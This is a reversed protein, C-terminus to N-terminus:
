RNARCHPASLLAAARERCGHRDGGSRAYGDFARAADPLDQMLGCTPAHSGALRFIPPGEPTAYCRVGEFVSSGYHVVHSMVHITADEWNVFKGDRWIRHHNDAREMDRGDTRLEAFCRTNRAAEGSEAFSQCSWRIEEAAIYGPPIADTTTDLSAANSTAGPMVRNRRLNRLRRIRRRRCSGVGLSDYGQYSRSAQRVRAYARHGPVYFESGVVDRPCYPTQLLGTSFDIERTIISSPRPWDPPAPRRRYVETMFATWAPAALRGGQADPM